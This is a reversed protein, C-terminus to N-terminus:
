ISLLETSVERWVNWSYLIQKSLWRFTYQCLRLCERSTEYPGCIPMKRVYTYLQDVYTISSLRSLFVTHEQHLMEKESLTLSKM